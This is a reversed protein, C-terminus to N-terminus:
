SRMYLAMTFLLLLLTLGFLAWTLGVIRKSTVEAIEFVRVSLAQRALFSAQSEKNELFIFELIRRPTQSPHFLWDSKESYNHSAAIEEPTKM